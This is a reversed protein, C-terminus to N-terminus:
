SFIKRAINSKGDLVFQYPLSSSTVFQLYSQSPGNFFALDFIYNSKSVFFSITESALFLLNLNMFLTKFKLHKERNTGSASQLRWCKLIRNGDLFLMGGDDTKIYM